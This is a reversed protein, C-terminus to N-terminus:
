KFGKKIGMFVCKVDMCILVYRCIETWRAFYLLQDDKFRYYIIKSAEWERQKHDTPQKKPPM